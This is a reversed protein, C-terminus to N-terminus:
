CWDSSPARASLAGGEVLWFWVLALLTRPLRACLVASACVRPMVRAHTWLVSLLLASNVVVLVSCNVLVYEGAIVRRVVCCWLM